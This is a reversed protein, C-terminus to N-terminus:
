SRWRRAPAPRIRRWSRWRPTASARTSREAAGARAAFPEVATATVACGGPRSRGGATRRGVYRRGGSTGSAPSAPRRLRVAADWGALPRPAHDVIVAPMEGAKAPGHGVDFEAGTVRECRRRRCGAGVAVHGIGIVRPGSWREDTLALKVAAVVDLSMCTTVCRAATATSRSRTASGSARMLRAVISDKAQMGPGYVNTLRLFACRLATRRRHLRVDADRRRGQHRRVPDAPAAAGRETIAPAEM